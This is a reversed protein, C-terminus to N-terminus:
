WGTNPIHIQNNGQGYPMSVSSLSAAMNNFDESLSIASLNSNAIIPSTLSDSFSPTVYDIFPGNDVSITLRTEGLVDAMVEIAFDTEGNFSVNTLVLVELKNRFTEINVSIDGSSFGEADIITTLTQCGLQRNSTKFMIKTLGAETLLAPIANSLETAVMTTRDSGGWDCTQGAVHVTAMATNSLFQMHVISDINPQLTQLDAYTFSNSVSANNIQSIFRLFPDNSVSAESKVALERAAGVRDAESMVGYNDDGVMGAAKYNNFIESMYSSAMNNSRKSKVVTNGVSTRLDNAYQIDAIHSKGMNVFVDTPRITQRLHNPDTPRDFISQPNGGIVQSTEFVNRFVQNGIPTRVQQARTRIVSNVYFSMNPDVAGNHTIGVHSTWGTVVETTISGAERKTSLEMMFRVRRENWGNAINVRAEPVSSPTIIQGAIGSLSLASIDGYQNVINELQNMTGGDLNTTYPRSYQEGYTGTEIMLLKTIEIKERNPNGLGYNMGNTNFGVNSNSFQNSM